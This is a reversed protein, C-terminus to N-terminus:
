KNRFIDHGFNLINSLFGHDQSFIPLDDNIVWKNKLEDGVLKPAKYCAVGRRFSSPYKNFDVDCEESLLLVKEDTSLGVLMNKITPKDYKKLLEYFCSFQISAYFNQQQKFILTNVAEVINPTTFANTLFILDNQMNLNTNEVTSNFHTSAIASVASCLKQVKNDFWPSTDQTQDNRSVILIEDNFSYGFIAGEINHCLKLMTAQLCTSLNQDFPKDVLSTSKSFSRGNVVFIVPLKNLLKFDSNEQYSSIRSKLTSITM